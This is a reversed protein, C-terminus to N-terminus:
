IYIPLHNLGSPSFLLLKTLDAHKQIMQSQKGNFFWPRSLGHPCGSEEEVLGGASRRACRCPGLRNGETERYGTARLPGEVQCGCTSSVQVPLVDM